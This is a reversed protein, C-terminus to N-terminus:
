FSPFDMTGRIRKVAFDGTYEDAVEFRSEIIKYDLWVCSNQSCKYEIYELLSPSDWDVELSLQFGRRGSRPKSFIFSSHGLYVISAPANEVKINLEGEADYRWDAIKRSFSFGSLLYEDSGNSLFKYHGEEDTVVIFDHNQSINRFHLKVGGTFM